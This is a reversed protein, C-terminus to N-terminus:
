WVKLNVAGNCNPCVIWERGEPGGSRDLGHYEKVESDIYRLTAGCNRCNAEKQKSEDIRVITVM